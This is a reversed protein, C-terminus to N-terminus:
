KSFVSDGMSSEQKPLTRRPVDPLEASLRENIDAKPLPELPLDVRRHELASIEMAELAAYGEYAQRINCPHSAIEGDLWRILDETYTLQAEPQELEDKFGNERGGIVNGGTKATCAGWCGSCEAWVYGTTGYVTLRDDEWFEIPYDGKEYNERHHHFPRTFYGFQLTSRVGNGLVMEGLFYDPSPHTDALLQRGHVHGVVSVPGIGHNAWIVYDMYHTGLQSLWAQCEANIRQVEGLEGSELIERLKRFNKLYKHQHCVVAKIGHAECLEVMKKAEHLSTAMPKEMCIAKVGYRVALEIMELRVSPLTCFSLIEPRTAKVLAEADTYWATKPIDFATGITEVREPLVDCIGTLHIRDQMQLFGKIHTVGRNGLGIQVATYRKM